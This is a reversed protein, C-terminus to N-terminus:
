TMGQVLYCWYVDACEIQQSLGYEKESVTFILKLDESHFFFHHLLLNHLPALIKVTGKYKQEPLQLAHEIAPKQDSSLSSGIGCALSM